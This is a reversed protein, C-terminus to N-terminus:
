EDAKAMREMKALTKRFEAILEANAARKDHKVCLPLTAEIQDPIGDLTDGLKEYRETLQVLEAQLIVIHQDIRTMRAFVEARQAELRVRDGRLRSVKQNPTEPIM